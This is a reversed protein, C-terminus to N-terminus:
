LADGLTNFFDASFHSAAKAARECTENLGSSGGWKAGDAWRKVGKSEKWGEREEELCVGGQTLGGRYWTRSVACRDALAGAAQPQAGAGDSIGALHLAAIGCLSV